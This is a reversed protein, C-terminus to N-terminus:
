RADLPTRSEGEAISSVVNQNTYHTWREPDYALTEGSLLFLCVAGIASLLRTRGRAPRTM